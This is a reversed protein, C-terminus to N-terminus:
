PETWGPGPLSGMAPRLHGFFDAAGIVGDGDLDAEACAPDAAPDAGLCPRFAGFFDSPGVVGDDDLDLDCADGYHQVGPLSADDDRGADVDVQFPNPVLVCNDCADGWPDGDANEQGPDAVADCLDAEIPVGDGDGDTGCTPIRPDFFVVPAPDFSGSTDPPLAPDRYRLAIGAGAVATGAAALSGGARLAISGGPGSADLTAEPAVALHCAQLDLTGGRAAGAADISGALDLAGDVVGALTGGESGGLDVEGLAANAARLDMRGGVGDAGPVGALVPAAFDADGATVDVVGGLGEGNGQVDIPGLVGLAARAEALGAEVFLEGGDGDGSGSLDLPGSLDLAGAAHLDVLRAGFGFSGRGRATVRGLTISGLTEVLIEGAEGGSADVEALDVPGFSAVELVGGGGEFGGRLRVPGELDVGLLARLTVDGGFDFRGAGDLLLGAPGGTIRGGTAELTLAGADAGSLDIAWTATGTLEINGTTRVVLTGGSAGAGGRGRVQGTGRIEFREALLTVAGSGLDLVGELVVARPGFDLVSGTDVPHTGAPIVCPDGTCLDGPVTAAAGPALALLLALLRAAAAARRASRHSRQEAGPRAPGRRHEARGRLGIERGRKDEQSAQRGAAPAGAAWAGQGHRRRGPGAAEPM